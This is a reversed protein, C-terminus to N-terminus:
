IPGPNPIRVLLFAEYIDYDFGGGARGYVWALPMKRGIVRSILVLIVVFKVREVDVKPSM